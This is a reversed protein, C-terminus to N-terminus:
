RRPPTLKEEMEENALYIKDIDPWAVYYTWKQGDSTCAIIFEKDEIEKLYYEGCNRIGNQVMLKGIKGFENSYPERWPNSYSREDDIVSSSSDTLSGIGIIAIILIVIIIVYKNM